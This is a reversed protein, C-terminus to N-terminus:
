AAIAKQLGELQKKMEDREKVLTYVVDTVKNLKEKHVKMEQLHKAELVLFIKTTNKDVNLQSALDNVAKAFDSEPQETRQEHERSHVNPAAPTVRNSPSTAGDGASNDIINNTSQARGNDFSAESSEFETTQRSLHATGTDEAEESNHRARRKRHGGVEDLWHQWKDLWQKYRWDVRDYRLRGREKLEQREIERRQLLVKIRGDPNSFNKGTADKLKKQIITWFTTRLLKKYLERNQVCLRLLLVEEAPKLRTRRPKDGVSRMRSPEESTSGSCRPEEIIWQTNSMPTTSTPQETKVKVPTEVGESDGEELRAERSRVKEEGSEVYRVREDWMDLSERYEPRVLDGRLVGGKEVVMKERRRRELLVRMRGEVDEVDKGVVSRLGKRAAAWFKTRYGSRYYGQFDVCYLILAFEDYCTLAIPGSTM